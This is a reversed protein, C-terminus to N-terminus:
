PDAFLRLRSVEYIFAVRSKQLNSKQAAGAAGSVRSSSQSAFVYEPTMCVCVSLVM